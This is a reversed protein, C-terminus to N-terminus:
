NTVHPESTFTSLPLGTADYLSHTVVGSWGYRVYRPRAMSKSWVAVTDGEVRAEAPVFHHDDGAIEFDGVAQGHASLGAAYEFRVRM